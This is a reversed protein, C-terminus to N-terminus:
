FINYLSFTREDDVSTISAYLFYNFFNPTIDLFVDQNGTM